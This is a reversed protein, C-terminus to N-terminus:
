RAVSLVVVGAVVLVMGGVRALTITEALFIASLVVVVAPYGASVPIVKSADGHSLATNLLMLSVVAAVGAAAAWAAGTGWTFRMQGTPVSVAVAVVYAIMAWPILDQWALTRLALKSTIFMGSLTLVYAITPALWAM